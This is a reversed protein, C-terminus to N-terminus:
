KFFAEAKMHFSMQLFQYGMGNVLNEPPKVPYGFLKSVLLIFIRMAMWCTFLPIDNNLIYILLAMTLCM